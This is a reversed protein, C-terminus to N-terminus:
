VFVGSSTAPTFLTGNTLRHSLYNMCLSFILLVFLVRFVEFNVSFHHVSIVVACNTFLFGLLALNPRGYPL